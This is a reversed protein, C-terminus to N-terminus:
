QPQIPFVFVMRPDIQCPVVEGSEMRTTARHLARFRIGERGRLRCRSERRGGILRSDEVEVEFACAGEVGELDGAIGFRFGQRRILIEVPGPRQCNGCRLIGFPSQVRGNGLGLGVFREVDGFFRAVFASGPEFYLSEPCGDQEIRGRRMLIIRDSLHMAEEADHTVVISAIGKRKLIQRTEERVAYRLTADLGSFPEDLLLCRPELAMARALAIRQQQGGSLTHPYRRRLEEAGVLRLGETVRRIRETTPYRRLGFEVNREVNLHPFLAYDQFLVGFPRREPPEAKGPTSVEVGDVVIRGATPIELGAILRLTTTKGCGSPGLLCVTEGEGVAFGIGQISAAKGYHHELGEVAIVPDM